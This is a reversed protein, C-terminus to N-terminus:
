VAELSWLRVDLRSAFHLEPRRDPLALGAAAAMTNVAIEATATQLSWPAHHIEGRLLQGATSPVYLCYRETLWHALSGAQAAAAPGTPRYRVELEAPRSLRGDTRESSYVVDDGERRCSIRAGVYPLHFWRRAVEVALPNTADLSLFFVGPRGGITVYTRVNLEPFSTTGPVPPLWRLRIGTMMFPVVGIWARGEYTDLTLSAPVLRRLTEPELPWHMFLLDRWTQAM